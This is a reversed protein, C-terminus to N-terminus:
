LMITRNRVLTLLSFVAINEDFGKLSLMEASKHAIKHLNVFNGVKVNKWHMKASKNFVVM